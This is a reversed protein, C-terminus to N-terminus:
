PVCQPDYTIEVEAGAAVAASTSSTFTLIRDVEDFTWNPQPDTGAPVAVGDAFVEISSPVPVRSLRVRRRIGAAARGVNEITSAWDNTCVSESLGGGILRSAERFRRGDAVNGLEGTSCGGDPGVLATSTQDFRHAYGRVHRIWDAYAEIERPSGDDTNNLFVFHLHADDSLLDSNWGGTIVPHVALFAAELGPDATFVTNIQKTMHGEFVDAQTLMGDNGDILKWLDTFLGSGPPIDGNALFGCGGRHLAGPDVPESSIRNGCTTVDSEGRIFGVEYRTGAATVPAIFQDWLTSPRAVVDAVSQGGSDSHFPLVWVVESEAQGAQVFRERTQLGDEVRLLVPIVFPTPSDDLTVEIQAVRHENGSAPPLGVVRITRRGGERNITFPTADHEVSFTTLEDSVREVSTVTVSNNSGNVLAVEADYRTCDNTGGVFDVVNPARVLPVTSQEGTIPLQFFSPDASVYFELTGDFTLDMADAPLDPTFAVEIAESAGRELRVEAPPDVLRFASDTDPSLRIGNLLCTGLGDNEVVVFARNDTRATSRGFEVTRPSIDATCPPLSESVATLELTEEIDPNRPDTRENSSIVVTATKQGVPAQANFEVDINRTQGSQVVFDTGDTPSFFEDSATDPGENIRMQGLFPVPGSNTITFRDPRTTGVSASQFDLTEPSLEIIPRGHGGSLAIVSNPLDAGTDPDTVEIEFVTDEPIDAGLELRAPEFRFFVDFETGVDLNEPPVAALNESVRVGTDFGPTSFSSLRAAGTVECTVTATAVEPPNLTGFDIAEVASTEGPFRCVIPATVPRAILTIDIGCENDLSPCAGVRWVAQDRPGGESPPTYQVTVDLSDLSFLPSSTLSGDANVSADIEFEGDGQLQNVVPRQGDNEVFIPIPRELLNRITITEEVVRGSIVRGLDLVGESSGDGVEVEIATDTEAVVEVEREVGGTFVLTVSTQIQGVDIPAEFGLTLSVPGGRGIELPLATEVAFAYSEGTFGEGPRVDTLSVVGTGQQVFSISETVNLGIPVRRFDIRDPFEVTDLPGGGGNGGSDGCAGTFLALIAAWRGTRRWMLRPQLGALDSFSLGEVGRRPTLAGELDM